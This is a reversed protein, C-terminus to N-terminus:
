RLPATLATWVRVLIEQTVPVYREGNGIDDLLAEPWGSIAGGCFDLRCAGDNGLSKLSYPKM